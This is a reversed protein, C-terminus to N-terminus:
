GLRFGGCWCQGGFFEPSGTAQNQYGQWEWTDTTGNMYVIYALNNFVRRSLGGAESQYCTVEDSNNKLGRILNSTIDSDQGSSAMIHAYFYYYGAVNPTFKGTSTDYLNDTDFVEETVGLTAFSHFTANSHSSNSPKKYEYAPENFAPITVNTLASADLAPVKGESDLEVVNGAGTGVDEDAATGLELNTKLGSVTDSLTFAM